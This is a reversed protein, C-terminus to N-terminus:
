QGFVGAGTVSGWDPGGNVSGSFQTLSPDLVGTATITHGSSELTFAAVFDGTGDPIADGQITYQGGFDLGFQSGFGDPYVLNTQSLAITASFSWGGQGDPVFTVNIAGELTATSGNGADVNMSLYFPLQFWQGPAGPPSPNTPSGPGSPGGPSGPTGAVPVPSMRAVGVSGTPSDQTLECGNQALSISRGDSFRLTLTFNFDWTDHGVPTITITLGGHLVADESSSNLVRLAYSGNDTNEEFDGFNGDVFGACTVNNSDVIKVTVLTDSDKDDGNTRFAISAGTISLAAHNSVITM